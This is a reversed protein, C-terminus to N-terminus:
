FTAGADNTNSELTKSDVICFKEASSLAKAALADAAFSEMKEPDYNGSRTDKENRAIEKNRSDTEVMESRMNCVMQRILVM